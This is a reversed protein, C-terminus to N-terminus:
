PTKRGTPTTRWELVLSSAADARITAQASAKLASKATDALEDSLAALVSVGTYLDQRVTSGEGTQEEVQRELSECDRTLGILALCSRQLEELYAEIASAVEHSRKEIKRLDDIRESPVRTMEDLSTNFYAAIGMAENLRVTREGREIRDIQQQHFAPGQKSLDRALAYLSAGSNARLRRLESAFRAEWPAENSTASQKPNM